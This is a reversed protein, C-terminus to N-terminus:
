AEFAFDAGHNGGCLADNEVELFDGQQVAEAETSEYTEVDGGASAAAFEFEDVGALGDALEEGEAIEEGEELGDAAM